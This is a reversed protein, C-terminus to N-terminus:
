EGGAKAAEHQSHLTQIPLIVYHKNGTYYERELLWQVHAEAKEISTHSKVLVLGRHSGAESTLCELELIVHTMQEKSM